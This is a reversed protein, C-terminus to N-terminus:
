YLSITTSCLNGSKLLKDEEIAILILSVKSHFFSVLFCTIWFLIYLHVYMYTHISNLYLIYFLSNNCNNHRLHQFLEGLLV